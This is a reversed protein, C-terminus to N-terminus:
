PLGLLLMFNDFYDMGFFGDGWTDVEFHIYCNYSSLEFEEFYVLNDEEYFYIIGEHIRIRLSGTPGTWNESYLYIRDGGDIRKKVNCTEDWRHKQISYFNNSYWFHDNIGDLTIVLAAECLYQNSVDIRIDSNSLDYSKITIYGAAGSPPATEVFLEVRGNTESVTGNNKELKKWIALNTSNDDFNDGFGITISNSFRAIGNQYGDNPTVECKWTDGIETEQSVITSSNSLGGKTEIYRQYIQQPSLSKPYIRVEDILGKFYDFWGIYLPETGSTQINGSVSKSAVTIGDVYLTLTGNKYTFAVHYWRNKQLSSYYTVRNYGSVNWAGTDIWIGAFIRNTGSFGIEYSPIKAITRTDWQNETLYIWHEVTIQSWRGGGDLTSTGPIKIHGRDFKYAGGVKGNNTWAVGRVIIGNNDYGSYDKAISSSNTDFPLLLNTISTNNRYWNYINTVKDNDPDYTTQNYCTLNEDTKNTGESSILLPPDQTPPAGPYTTFTYTKNTWHTGDTVSVTWTYTTSSDLNSVSVAYRGDAVNIGVDSGVDPYTAITYNMMDGQYDILNFSLQNLPLPVRTTGNLPSPVSVIPAETGALAEQDGIIYFTALDKQNNYGTVVWDVSRAINSIHVEDIAGHFREGGWYNSGLYLSKGVWDPIGTIARENIKKGNYYAYAYTGDWTIALHIWDYGSPQGGTTIKKNKEDWTLTLSWLDATKSTQGGCIGTTTTPGTNIHKTWVTTSYSYPKLWLEVTIASTPLFGEPIKLYGNGNFADAGDIKGSPDKGVEGYPTGDNGNSTSDYRIGLDEEIHQVMAYNSDWVATPNQQNSAEPNGYYVYLTTDATSSLMPMNIWAVLHGDNNDYLEIEHNLKNGQSDIFVIDDGDSQAKSAIDSDTVDILIPFNSLDGNVKTHDITIAKRYQWSVNWWSSAPGTTFTYTQNAWYTGDTVRVTWTYTTSSDLNSVSVTYRGDLVNTGSASGMNPNTVVTYSMLESQYDTLNFNLKALSIPVSKAGDYPSPASIIPKDPLPEESGITYFTAPDKQNNYGTLIWDASRAINSVRVEDIAGHFREGGWYNSGLYLPRGAWDPNGNIVAERVKEGNYYAYAYAGDWTVVLYIWDYGSPQGGTGSTKSKEDWTLTLAWFDATKSTQGGTIGTTTTPGTNIHKTWVTSSYSYPKLWLEVAIASTPLFGEPIRLYGDGNFADAGDIKGLPDKGVEGNLTGNNGNSTSDYRTGSTEEFHQVMLYNFDWVTSPTQQNPVTPNGYYIYLKTDVTSSLLPVNVWTVLHGTEHEFLEIEHSLKTGSSDVFITDDGDIQAKGALDADTIDVLVPFNELDASIKTHDIIIAKRFNWNKNWWPTLPETTFTYTKNTWHTGDTVSVTWTYTKSYQLNSVSVTYKGNGVKISTNSGIDPYTTVTYNMLNRQYDVLNFSLQSISIPTNIASNPPYPTSVFPAPDGPPPIYEAVGLRRESYFQVESRSRQTPKRAPTDYAYVRGSQGSVVVESYGDGDIDQVVAYNLIEWGERATVEAILSFTRNFVFIQTYNAVIIEMVGDGTVDAVQPGYFNKGVYMKADVKWEVLDWVVIDDATSNHGDAMLLELNGDSDIDYVSPQYHVPADSPIGVTKRIASGDTSNLIAVGGNLHGVIVDLIGDGNVDALMPIHSSLLLDPRSWRETLNRAWFSIVGKGYDNDGYHPDNLYMYRDGAYLEFEGDGDTDALSLGGGCPRWAFTQHLIRGDYSMSTIRGTGDLGRYIDTSAVFITPYGSGDIDAIVPSSYTELGLDTKRWYETGNNGHLVLVGAPRELPVVIEHIGDRNLDVMQPQTFDGIENDPFAWIVNGDTGNLVTVGGKGAYIVEELGNGIVDAILVGSSGRPLRTTTWKHKLITTTTTFSYIKHTWNKDDTASVSWYYTTGLSKMNTPIVSYTGKGVNRHILIDEWTGTANTSFTINMLDGDYDIARISLMPNTYADTTGNRPEEDFLAPPSEESYREESGLTYFTSPNKQNNYGTRIWDASRAINSIRVEDIAGHFREGGLYNSGLYLPKGAWDPIGTIAGENIKEGNYYAYAYTGDWTVVLHVWDYNSPQSGTGFTKSKEDWTLTLAWFDATKSTQGGCIGTTTTPGTNINKTWVTTSYSYPKLWLGVTIVSSPLFGETIKLYGDGNFADAGDIKGSLDKGVEGYLTGNNGNSTSDYRTSSREELHQVIVFNSDWIATVNQQNSADPNGYYMYLTTDSAPSLLPINVWAVLHGDNNNYFEIEHSFQVGNNDTFVIDDGDSQAKNALDDDTINILVPFNQLVGSVKTHDITITKRFNWNTNWWDEPTADVYQVLTLFPTIFVSGLLIVTIVLSPLRKHRM